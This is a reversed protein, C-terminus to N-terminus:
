APRLSAKLYREFHELGPVAMGVVKGEDDWRRLKVADEAFREAAFRAREEMSM